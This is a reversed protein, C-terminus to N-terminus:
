QAAVPIVGALVVVYGGTATGAAYCAIGVHAQKGAACEGHAHDVGGLVGAASAELVDVTAKAVGRLGKAVLEVLPGKHVLWKLLVAKHKVEWLAVAVGVVACVRVEVDVDLAFVDGLGVGGRARPRFPRQLHRRSTAGDALDPVNM